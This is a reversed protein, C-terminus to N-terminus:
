GGVTLLLMRVAVICGAGGSGVTRAQGDARHEPSAVTLADIGCANCLTGRVGCRHWRPRVDDPSGNGQHNNRVEHRRSLREISDRRTRFQALASPAVCHAPSSCGTRGAAACQYWVHSLLAVVDLREPLQRWSSCSLGSRGRVHDCPAM